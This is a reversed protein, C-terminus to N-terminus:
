ALDDLGQCEVSASRLVDVAEVELGRTELTRALDFAILARVRPEDCLGHAQQLHPV